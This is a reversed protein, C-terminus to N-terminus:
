VEAGPNTLARKAISVATNRDRCVAGTHLPVTSATTDISM